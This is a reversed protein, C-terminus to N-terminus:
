ENSFVEEIAREAKKTLVLVVGVLSALLYMGIVIGLGFIQWNSLQMAQGKVSLITAVNAATTATSKVRQVHACRKV